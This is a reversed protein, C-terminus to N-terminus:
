QIVADLIYEGISLLDGRENQPRENCIVRNHARATYSRGDITEDATVQRTMEGTKAGMELWVPGDDSQTDLGGVSCTEDYCNDIAILNFLQGIGFNSPCGEEAPQWAALRADRTARMANAYLSHFFVASALLITLMTCVIVAEVFIAGRQRRASRARPRRSSALVAQAM